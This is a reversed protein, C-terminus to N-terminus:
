PHLVTCTGDKALLILYVLGISTESHLIQLKVVTGVVLIQPNAASIPEQEEEMERMLRRRLIASPLIPRAPSSDPSSERLKGRVRCFTVTM